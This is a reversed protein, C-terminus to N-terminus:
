GDLNTNQVIVIQIAGLNYLLSTSIVYVSEASAETDRGEM